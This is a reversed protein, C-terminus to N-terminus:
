SQPREGIHNPARVDPIPRVFTTAFAVVFILAIIIAGRTKEGKAVEIYPQTRYHQLMVRDVPRVTRDIWWAFIFLTAWPVYVVWSSLAFFERWWPSLGQWTMLLVLRPITRILASGLLLLKVLRAATVPHTWPAPFERMDDIISYMWQLCLLTGAWFCMVTLMALWPLGALSPPFSSADSFTNNM